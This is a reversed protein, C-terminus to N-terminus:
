SPSSAGYVSYQAEIPYFSPWFHQRFSLVEDCWRDEGIVCRCTLGPFSRTNGVEPEQELYTGPKRKEKEM